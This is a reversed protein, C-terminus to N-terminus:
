AYRSEVLWNCIQEFTQKDCKKLLAERCQADSMAHVFAQKIIALADWLNLEIMRAATMFEETLSTRSIGPNDTNITLAVGSRWLTELPYKPLQVTIPYLPDYFGIVERNSTPCLELCIGRNRFRQLLEPSDALSLGHGIRDAHLHYAAQWINAASEGEGAHITLPLCQEFAPLFATAMKDPSAANEDGAMDLGVLFNKVIPDSLASAALKVIDAANNQRRDLIWIFRYTCFEDDPLVRRLGKLWSVPDDSYKQPSGRLELYVISDAKTYTRIVDSYGKLAEPHGLVASGTLAGPREYASFGHEHNFKLSVRPETCDYLNQYLQLKSAHALIAAAHEARKVPQLRKDLYMDPWNWPWSQEALLPNVTLLAAKRQEGTMDDWIAQGIAQQAEIDPIGGLHCHLEAKPLRRILERHAPNLRTNRLRDIDVPSLRYLHRWNEHKENSAIQALYNSLLQGANEERREAEDVLSQTDPTFYIIQNNVSLSGTTLLPFRHAHVPPCDEWETDLTERRTYRGVFAPMLLAALNVPLSHTWYAPSNSGLSQQEQISEPGVVHLLGSAGFLSAARQLDASMTKRGGALSCVVKGTESALLTTRFVLERLHGLEFPSSVQGTGVAIFVRLRLPHKLLGNWESILRIGEKTRLSDSTIIWLEDLDDINSQYRLSALLRQDPHKNYLDCRSPALVAVVEPIVQWSGGLTALLIKPYSM